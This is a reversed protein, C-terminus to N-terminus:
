ARMFRWKADGDATSRRPRRNCAMSAVCSFSKTVLPWTRGGRSAGTDRRALPAGEHREIAPARHERRLELRVRDHTQLLEDAINDLVAPNDDDDVQRHLLHPAVQDAVWTPQVIVVVPHRTASPATTM